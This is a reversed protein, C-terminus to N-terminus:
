FQGFIRFTAFKLLSVLILFRNVWFDLTTIKNRSVCLTELLTLKSIVQPVETLQNDDLQIERLNQLKTVCDPLSTLKNINCNLRTATTLKDQTLVSLKEVLKPVDMQHGHYQLPVDGRKNRLETMTLVKERKGVVNLDMESLKMECVPCGKNKLEKFFNELCAKHFKHNCEDLIYLVDMDIQKECCGCVFGESISELPEKEQNKCEECHQPLFIIPFRAHCFPCPSSEVDM